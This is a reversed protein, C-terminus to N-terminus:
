AADNEFSSSFSTGVLNLRKPSEPVLSKRPFSIALKINKVKQKASYRIPVSLKIFTAM